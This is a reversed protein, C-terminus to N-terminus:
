YELVIRGLAANDADATPFQNSRREFPGINHKYLPSLRCELSKVRIYDPSSFQITARFMFMAGRLFVLTIGYHCIRTFIDTIYVDKNITCAPLTTDYRTFLM